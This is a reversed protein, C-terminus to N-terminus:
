HLWGWDIYDENWEKCDKNTCRARITIRGYDLRITANSTNYLVDSLINGHAFTYIKNGCWRCSWEAGKIKQLEGKNICEDCIAESSVQQDNNTQHLLVTNKRCNACLVLRALNIFSELSHSADLIPKLKKDYEAVKKPQFKEFYYARSQAPDAPAEGSLAYERWWMGQQDRQKESDLQWRRSDLPQCMDHILHSLDRQIDDLRWRVAQGIQTQLELAEDQIAGQAKLQTMMSQATHKAQSDLEEIKIKQINRVGIHLFGGSYVFRGAGYKKYRKEYDTLQKEIEELHKCRDSLVDTGSIENIIKSNKEDAIWIKLKSVVLKLAEVDTGRAYENRKNDPFPFNSRLKEILGQPRVGSVIELIDAIIECLGYLDQALLAEGKLEDKRWQPIRQLFPYWKELPDIILATQGISTRLIELKDISVDFQDLSKLKDVKLRDFNFQFNPSGTFYRGREEKWEKSSREAIDFSHLMLLFDHLYDCLMLQSPGGSPNKQEKKNAINFSMGGGSGWSIFRTKQQSQWDVSDPSQLKGDVSIINHSLQMAIYIQFPSYYRIPQEKVSGNNQRISQEVVLLPKLFGDNEMARLFNEEIWRHLKGTM